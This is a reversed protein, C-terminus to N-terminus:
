WAEIVLGPIDSFDKPNRTALPLGHAIATAAILRDLVKKRDFGIAELIVRYALLEATEFPLVELRGDLADLMQRRKVALAAHRYVGGELEASTIISIYPAEDLAGARDWVAIEGDRLPIAVSTDLLISGTL